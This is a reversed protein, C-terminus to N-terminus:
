EEDDEAGGRGPGDDLQLEELTEPDIAEVIAYKGESWRFFDIERCRRSCFPAHHEGPSTAPPVVKHCVPCTPSRIM